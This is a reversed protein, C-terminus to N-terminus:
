LCLFNELAVSVNKKIQDFEQIIIQIERHMKYNQSMVSNLVSSLQNCEENLMSLCYKPKLQDLRKRLTHRLAQDESVLRNLKALTDVLEKHEKKDKAVGTLRGVKDGYENMKHTVSAISDKLDVIEKELSTEQKNKRKLIEAIRDASSVSVGPEVKSSHASRSANSIHGELSCISAQIAKLSYSIIRKLQKQINPPLEADAPVSPNLFQPYITTIKQTHIFRRCTPCESKGEDMWNQLCSSHFLHGCQTVQIVVEPISKRASCTYCTERSSSSNSHNCSSTLDLDLHGNTPSSCDNQHPLLNQESNNEVDGFKELCIPCVIIGSM